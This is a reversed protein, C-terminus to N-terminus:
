DRINPEVQSIVNRFTYQWGTYFGFHTNTHVAGSYIGPSLLYNPHVIPDDGVDFFAGFGSFSFSNASSSSQRALTINTSLRGTENVTASGLGADAAFFSQEGVRQSKTVNTDVTTSYVVAMGLALLMAMVMLTSILAIGRESNGPREQNHTM